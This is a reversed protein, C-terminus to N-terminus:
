LSNKSFLLNQSVLGKQCMGMVSIIDDKVKLLRSWTVFLSYFSCFQSTSNNKENQLVITKLTMFAM